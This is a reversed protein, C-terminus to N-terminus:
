FVSARPKAFMFILIIFLLIVLFIPYNENLFVMYSFENANAVLSDSRAVEYFSNSVSAGIIAMVGIIIIFVFALVPSERLFWAITLAALFFGFFMFPVASDFVWLSKQTENLVTQNFTDSTASMLGDNLHDAVIVVLSILFIMIFFVVILAIPFAGKMVKLM